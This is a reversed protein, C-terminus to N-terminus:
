AEAVVKVKLEAIVDRHLRVRVDHEGAEKIPDALEVRRRDIEVGQATLAEHIQLTTVSGFLKGEDGVRASIEIELAEVRQKVAQLDKLQKAAKEALVRKQHEVEKVRGDTAFIAKGQPILYNRAFGPKVKV